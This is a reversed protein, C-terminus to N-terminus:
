GGLLKVHSPLLKTNHNFYRKVEEPTYGMEQVAEEETRVWKLLRGVEINMAKIAEPMFRLHVNGNMYAKVQFLVEETEAHYWDQWQGGRWEREQSRSNYTAFGLNSFVAIIDAILEHATKHLGGEYERRHEDASRIAKWRSVVIRYDLKYHTFKEDRRAYRWGDKQWTRQNSKYNLVGDFTSLEHFLEILQDDFYQNANKIAWITVAYANNATFEVSKNGNLKELL